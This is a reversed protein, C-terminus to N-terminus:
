NFLKQFWNKRPTLKEIIVEKENVMRQLQVIVESKAINLEAFEKIKTKSQHLQRQLEKTENNFELLQRNKNELIENSQKIETKMEEITEVLMVTYKSGEVVPSAPTYKKVPEVKKKSIAKKMKGKQICIAHPTRNFREALTENSIHFLEILTAKESATWRRRTQRKTLEPFRIEETM